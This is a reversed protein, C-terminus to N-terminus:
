CSGQALRRQQGSGYAQNAALIRGEQLAYAMGLMMAVDTNPVPAIWEAGFQTATTSRRPDIVIIKKGSKSIQKMWDLGFGLNTSFSAHLTNAPDIAWFVMVETNDMVTKWSTQQSYVDTGGTIHPMITQAAGSSYDTMCDTFGGMLYALRSM